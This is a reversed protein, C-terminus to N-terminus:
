GPRGTRRPRGGFDCKSAAERHLRATERAEEILRHFGAIRRRAKQSLNLHLSHNLMPCMSRLLMLVLGRDQSIEMPVASLSPRENRSRPGTLLCASRPEADITLRERNEVRPARRAARERRGPFKDGAPLSFRRCCRCRLSSIWNILWHFANHGRNLCRMGTEHIASGDCDV